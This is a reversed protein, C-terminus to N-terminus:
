CSELMVRVHAINPHTVCQELPLFLFLYVRYYGTMKACVPYDTLYMRPRERNAPFPSDFGKNHITSVNVYKWVCHHM